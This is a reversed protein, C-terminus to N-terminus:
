LYFYLAVSIKYQLLLVEPWLHRLPSYYRRFVPSSFVNKGTQANDKTITLLTRTPKMARFLRHQTNEVVPAMGVAFFCVYVCVCENNLRIFVFRIVYQYVWGCHYSRQRGNEVWVFMRKLFTSTLLSQYFPCSWLLWIIKSAMDHQLVTGPLCQAWGSPM